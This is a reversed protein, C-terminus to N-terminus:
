WVLAPESVTPAPLVYCKEKILYYVPNYKSRYALSDADQTIGAVAANIKQCPKHFTGDKRTVYIVRGDVMSAGNSDTLDTDAIFMDAEEPSLDVVRDFVDHQGDKLLQIVEDESPSTTSSISLGTLSTIRELFNM